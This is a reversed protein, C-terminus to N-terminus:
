RIRGDRAADNIEAEIRNFEAERGVYKGQAQDRYFREIFKAAIIPKADPASVPAPTAVSTPTVQSQLTEQVKVPHAAKFAKFVNAVRQADLAARAKDLAAQRPEGYIPDVEGLWALWREDVNVDQWDSVLGTLTAYFQQELTLESRASVGQVSAELAKLRGDLSAYAQEAYRQVMEIMEAGFNEIDKPDVTPKVAAEQTQVATLKDLMKQMNAMQSEYSRNTATLDALKSAYTGQLSKYKQQWDEAPPTVPDPAPPTVQPASTPDNAPAALQAPDTLVAQATQSAQLEQAIAAEVANAQDLQRQVQKPLAM